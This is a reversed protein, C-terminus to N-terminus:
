NVLGCVLANSIRSALESDRTWIAATLGYPTGNALQVAELESHFSYLRVAPGFIEKKSLESEPDLGQIVAPVVACSSWQPSPKGVREVHAGQLECQSLFEEFEDAANVSILPGINSDDSVGM